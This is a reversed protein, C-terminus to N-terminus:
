CSPAWIDLHVQQVSRLVGNGVVGFILEKLWSTVQLFFGSLNRCTTASGVTTFVVLVSFRAVCRICIASTSSQMEGGEAQLFEQEGPEFGTPPPPQLLGM